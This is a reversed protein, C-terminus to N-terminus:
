PTPRAIWTVRGTGVAAGATADEGLYLVNTTGITGVGVATIGNAGSSLTTTGLAPQSPQYRYVAASDALYLYQGDATVYVPTTVSVGQLAVARCGGACTSAGTIRTMGTDEALYLANGIFAMAPPGARGAANGVTEARAVGPKIRVITNTKKSSVYLWGNPGLAVAQPRNGGLGANPAVVSIAAIRGNRYIYEYVGRSSSAIDPVYFAGAGPDNPQPAPVFIAQAPSVAGGVVCTNQDIAGAEIRCVGLTHDSVWLETGVQMLAAPNTAGGALLTAGAPLPAPPETGGGGDGGGTGTCTPQTATDWTTKYISARLIQNGATPDDASYLISNAGETATGLASINVFGSALRVSCQDAPSYRYASSLSAVYLSSGDSTVYVPAPVGVGQAAVARCGTVCNPASNIRSLGAAEALYLTGGVFAMAPPGGGIAAGFTEVVGTAPRIRKLTGNRKFSVYVKNDPGFAVALPRDAGLRATPALVSVNTIHGGRYNYQFVGQSQSSLDPVYFVGADPFNVTPNPRFVAQGPAIAGGLVCSNQDIAGNVLKCFGMTHDSIWLSTRADVVASPMTAGTAFLSAGVPEASAPLALAAAALLATRSAHRALRQTRRTRAPGGQVAPGAATEFTNVDNTQHDTKM